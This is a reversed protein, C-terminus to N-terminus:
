CNVEFTYEGQSVSENINGFNLHATCGDPVTLKVTIRGATRQWQSKITGCISPYEMAFEQMKEPFQPAFTFEKFGPAEPMPYVGGLYEYMWASVDGFLIHNRSNSRNWCECLTTDGQEVFYGWGPYSKQTYLKHAQDIYQYKSLVRPVWKAGLMGFFSTYQHEELLELLHKLLVETSEAPAIEFYLLAACGTMDLTKYANNELYKKNLAARLKDVRHIYVTGDRGTLTAFLSMLVLDYYYFASSTLEVPALKEYEVHCWDGLGFHVMGESNEMSECYDLYRDLADFHEEIASTRGTFLWIRYAYEFIVSDWAPGAWKGYGFMGTPAVAALQGDARQTDLVTQLFEECATACDFNWLGCEMALLADGTWGNKERHPCDTPIGVFNSLYSQCTMNQLKQLTDDSCRLTGNAPLDSHIFGARLSKLEVSSDLIMVRVYRFGHYTFRPRFSEIGDGKLIYKDTQFKGSLIFDSFYSVEIDGNDRINEAYELIVEAGANGSVTLECVGSLNTGFDYVTQYSGLKKVAVPEYWQCIRCPPANEKIALGGPSNVVCVKQWNNDSELRADYFEGNRLENFIIPSKHWQWSEDSVLELTDDCFLECTFRVRDRWPVHVFAWRTATGCDYWGNGLTVELTNEGAALLTTIDYDVYRVHKDYQTPAPALVRDDPRLNNVKLEHYGGSALRLIAKGPLQDLQFIKRFVPAPANAADHPMEGAAIWRGAFRYANQNNM